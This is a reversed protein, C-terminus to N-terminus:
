FQNFLSRSLHDQSWLPMAVQLPYADSGEIAEDILTRGLHIRYVKEM